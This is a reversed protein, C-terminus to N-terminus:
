KNNIYDILEEITMLEKETEPEDTVEVPRFFGEMSVSTFTGNKIATWIEDNEIKYVAFLSGDEVETFEKPDIGKEVDKIFLQEMEVGDVYTNNRHMINICNQYGDKLFKQAIKKITEASFRVYFLEGDENLRPFPFGARAIVVMVKHEMGDDIISCRIDQVETDKSFAYWEVEMAPRDVLSITYMGVVEDTLILDYLKPTKDM